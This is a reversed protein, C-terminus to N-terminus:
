EYGWEKKDLEAISDPFSVNEKEPSGEWGKCYLIALHHIEPWYSYVFDKPFTKM